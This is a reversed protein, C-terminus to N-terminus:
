CRVRPPCRGRTGPHAGPRRRPAAAAHHYWGLTALLPSALLLFSAFTKARLHSDRRPGPIQRWPAPDATGGARVVTGGASLASRSIVHRRGATRSRRRRRRPPPSSMGPRHLSFRAPPLSRAVVILVSVVVVGRRDRHARFREHRVAAGLVAGFCRRSCGLQDRDRALAARAAAFLVFAGISGVIPYALSFWGSSTAPLAHTERLLFSAAPPFPVGSAHAVANTTIPSSPTGRKLLARSRRRSRASRCRASRCPPMAGRLETSCCRDRRRPRHTAGLM